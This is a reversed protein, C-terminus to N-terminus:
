QGVDEELRRCQRDVSWVDCGEDRCIELVRADYDGGPRGCWGPLLGPTSISSTACAGCKRRAKEPSIANLRQHDWTHNGVEHGEAVM